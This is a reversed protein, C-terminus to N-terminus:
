LKTDKSSKVGLYQFYVLVRLGFECKAQKNSLNKTVQEGALDSTKASHLIEVFHSGPWAHQIHASQVPLSRMFFDM